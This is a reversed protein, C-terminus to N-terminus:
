KFREDSVINDPTKTANDIWGSKVEFRNDYPGFFPKIDLVPTENLMDVEKVFLLNNERKSLALISIGVPNARAPARTAFIGHTQTDMFPIVHHKWQTIKHFHYIVIIHSFGEIDKLGDAFEEYVEIIGEQEKAEAPQVPIGSISKFPSRIVGIPKYVINNM